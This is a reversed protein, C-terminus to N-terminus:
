SVPPTYRIELASPAPSRRGCGAGDAATGANHNKPLANTVSTQPCVRRPQPRRSPRLCIARRERSRVHTLAANLGVAPM